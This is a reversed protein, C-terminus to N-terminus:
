QLSDNMEKNSVISSDAFRSANLFKYGDETTIYHGPEVYRLFGKDTLEATIDRMQQHSLGLRRELEEKISAEKSAELIERMLKTREDGIKGSIMYM